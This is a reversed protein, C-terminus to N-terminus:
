DARRSRLSTLVSLSVGESTLMEAEGAGSEGQRAHPVAVLPLTTRRGYRRKPVVPQFASLGGVSPLRRASLARLATSVLSARLADRASLERLSRASQSLFWRVVSAAPISTRASAASRAM